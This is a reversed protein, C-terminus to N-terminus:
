CCNLIEELKLMDLPPIKTVEFFVQHSYKSHVAKLKNCSRLTLLINLQRVLPHLDSTKYGSHYELTPAWHGLKKMYLALLFSGAALKSAREQVYDYEQLTMECIFRSLTLTKMSAHVCKAYRRLFHYAIPINIDFQLTKLISNEMALMEDRKYMDDCIYLFDDVCPPCPEEFKAAILFATSGLLQLKDRKCIVEMLYHDVLKVALYLTEHSMEFTMQVEVLWDVLIARMDSNIDTQRTMYKKLIFKEEREKMYSFIDKIYISNFFPDNHDKDVDELPTMEKESRKDQSSFPKNSSSGCTSSQSTTSFKGVSSVTVTSSLGTRSDPATTSVHPSTEVQLIIFDKLFTDEKHTLNKQLALPEKSSLDKESSPKEQLALPEKLIAEEEITPNEQLALPEEFLTEKESTPKEQLALPEKLIAEEEITPNEQLALPEEFLTEKESTPKEQLALSERLIIEKEISPNEQLALPQKILSEEESTINEQLALQKKLLFVEGQATPKKLSLQGEISVAVETSLEEKLVLPKKFLFEEETTSKEQLALLAKLSDEKNDTKKQLAFSKRFLSEDKNTPKVHLSFPEQFSFEEETTSREELTLQEKIYSEEETTINEQLALPKKSLSVEQLTTHREKLVSPDQFLFEEETTSKKKFPLLEKFLSEEESTTKEIVLPKKLLFTKGQTIQRKKLSAPTKTLVAEDTSSKKRFSVPEMFSSDKGEGIMNQLDLQEQFIPMMMQTTCKKKKLSLSEKTSVAVDTTHKKRFSVPEMLFEDKSDINEQLAWLKKLLALDGQITDKEQLASPKKLLSEEETAPKKKFSLPEKILSKEESITQLVLPKTLCSMKGQSTCKKKLSLLKNSSTAEEITRKKNFALPEKLFSEEETPTKRLVLSKELISVEEQTTHKEQLASPEQFLSEKPTPKKKFSLPEKILSKEESTTKQLVLPKKLRYRKGRTTRKKKLPLPKKSLTAEKTTHKKRLSIQEMLFEDEGDKKEQLAGPKKLLTVEGDTTHKEQSVSLEQFLSEERTTPRKKFSLSEKILAKEGSITKQLVLPKKLHAIKGQTTCKKKLSLTRTTLTTETTTPQKKFALPEKFISDEETDIKEQLALSKKLISVEQETTHKKPLASPEQFLCEKETTPKRKFSLLEKALSKEESTIKQLVLPKKMCSVKGQTTCKKKLSLLKKTPTAEETKPKKRFNTPEMFFSDEEVNIDQLALEERTCSQKGQHTCMNKLSLTSKNIAAKETKHKKGFTMPEVVDSDTEEQLSLPKELLSVEGQNTGKKLSRKILITDETTPEEKLIFPKKFLSAGETTPTKSSTPTELILPKDIINPVTTTSVVVPSLELKYGCAPTNRNKKKSVDKVFENSAEKKPKAPQSQSANTLDEFASRKKLPGQPSSPSIKAQYNEERKESPGHDSPVIKSSQSKKTERRSRQPPLPLPM